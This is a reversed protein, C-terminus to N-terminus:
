PDDRKAVCASVALVSIHPFLVEIFWRLVQLFSYTIRARPINNSKNRASTRRRAKLQPQAPTQTQAREENSSQCKGRVQMAPLLKCLAGVPGATGTVVQM